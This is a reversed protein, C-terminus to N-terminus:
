SLNVPKSPSNQLPHPGWNGEAQVLVTAPAINRPVTITIPSTPGSGVLVPLARGIRLHINVKQYNPDALNQLFSVSVSKSTASLIRTNIRLVKVPQPQNITPINPSGLGNQIRAPQAATTIQRIRANVEALRPWRVPDVPVDHSRGLTIHGGSETEPMM